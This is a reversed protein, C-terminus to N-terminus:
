IEYMKKAKSIAIEKKNIPKKSSQYVNSGISDIIQLKASQPTGQIMVYYSKLEPYYVDNFTFYNKISKAPLVKCTTDKLDSYDDAIEEEKLINRIQEKIIERLKVNPNQHTM